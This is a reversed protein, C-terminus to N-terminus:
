LAAGLIFGLKKSHLIAGLYFTLLAISAVAGISYAYLFLIHESLSILLLYFVLLAM